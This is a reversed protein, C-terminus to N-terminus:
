DSVTHEYYGVAEYDEGSITIIYTGEIDPISISAALDMTSDIEMHNIFGTEQHFVTVTVMDLSCLLNISLFGLDPYIKAVVYTEAVRPPKIAPTVFERIRMERTRANITTIAPLMMIILSLLLLIKRIRKM